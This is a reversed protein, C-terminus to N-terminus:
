ISGSENIFVEKYPKMCENIENISRNCHKCKEPTYFKTFLPCGHAKYRLIHMNCLGHGKQNKGCIICKGRPKHEKMHCSRCIVQLNSLDNNTYDGDKHHIDISKTSGCIECKSCDLFRRALKRATTHACRDEQSHHTKAFKLSKDNNFCTLNCYKRRCFVGFDELRGNIRKRTLEKGCYLCYHPSELQKPINSAM